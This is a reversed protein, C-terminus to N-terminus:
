SMHSPGILLHTFVPSGQSFGGPVGALLFMFCVSGCCSYRKPVILLIFNSDLNGEGFDDRNM